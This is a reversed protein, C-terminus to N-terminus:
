TSYPLSYPTKFTNLYQLIGRTSLIVQEKNPDDETTNMIGLSPRRTHVLTTKRPPKFTILTQKMRQNLEDYTQNM